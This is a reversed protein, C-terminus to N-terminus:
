HDPEIVSIPLACCVHRLMAADYCCRARMASPPTLMLLREILTDVLMLLLEAYPAADYIGTLAFVAFFPTACYDILATADLAYHLLAAYDHRRLATADAAIAAIRPTL